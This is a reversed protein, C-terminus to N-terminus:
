RRKGSWFCVRKEIARMLANFLVGLVSLVILSSFVSGLDLGFNAKLIMVGLGERAGVFEGVIAGIVALVIATNLGAFIFPLANPLQVYRLTQGHSACLGKLLDLRDQESARLGAITNVLVPFMATLAVILVKSELGFGFWVIMLPAIAVKPITQLAVVYPYLIRDVTASLALVIGLGIGLVAGLLFGLLVESVTIGVAKWYVPNLLDEGLSVLVASPSPVIYPSIDALRIIGEWAGLFVLLSLVSVAARGLLRSWYQGAPETDTALSAAPSATAVSRLMNSM